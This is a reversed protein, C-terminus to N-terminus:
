ASANEKARQLRQQIEAIKEPPLDSADLASQLRVEYRDILQYSCDDHLSARAAFRLNAPYDRCIGPRTRYNLCHKTQSDYHHCKFRITLTEAEIDRLEFRNVFRQWLLFLHLAPPTRLLISPVHIAPSVCCAGCPECQGVLDYRPYDGRLRRWFRWLAMDLYFRTLAIMKLAIRIPGDRM